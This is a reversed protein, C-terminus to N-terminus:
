RATTRSGSTSPDLPNRDTRAARARLAAPIVPLLMGYPEGNYLHHIRHAEALHDGVRTAPPRWGRVRRHIYVDHVAAYAAGYLTVGVGVAVLDGLGDVNFGLALGVLVVAAFMVPYLDNAEWGTSNPRHHSRHLREGIGHMIWRHAAYTVPEMALFAVLAVVFVRM